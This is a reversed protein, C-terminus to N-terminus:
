KKKYYLILVNFVCKTYTCSNIFLTIGLFTQKDLIIRSNGHLEEANCCLESVNGIMERDKVKNKNESENLCCSPYLFSKRCFVSV